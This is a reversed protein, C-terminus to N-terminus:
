STSCASRSHPQQEVRHDGRGNGCLEASAAVVHDGHLVGVLPVQTPGVVADQQVMGGRITARHDGVVDRVEHTTMLTADLASLVVVAQQQEAVVGEGPVTVVREDAMEETREFLLQEGM